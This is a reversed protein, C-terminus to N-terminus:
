PHISVSVLGVIQPEIRELEQPPLLHLALEDSVELVSAGGCALLVELMAGRLRHLRVNVEAARLLLEREIM